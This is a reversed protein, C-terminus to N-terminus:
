PSSPVIVNVEVVAHPQGALARWQIPAAM